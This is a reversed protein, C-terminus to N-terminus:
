RARLRLPAPVADLLGVELCGWLGALIAEAADHRLNTPRTIGAHDIVLRALRGAHRKAQAGNRQESPHLLLARWREAPVRLCVAGRRQGARDWIQALAADGEVVLWRM